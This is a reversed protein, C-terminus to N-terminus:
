KKTVFAVPGVVDFTVKVEGDKTIEVKDADLIVWQGDVFVMVMLFDTKLLGETKFTVEKTEGEKLEKELGVYFMDRVVLDSAKVDTKMEKLADNLTPVAEELSKADAIVKQAEKVVTKVEEPAKELDVLATVTVDKEAAVPAGKQEVSPRFSAASAPLALTAVILLVCIIQIAKKM